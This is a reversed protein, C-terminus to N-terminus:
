VASSLRRFDQDGLLQRPRRIAFHLARHAAAALRLTLIPAPAGEWEFRLAEGDDDPLLRARDGFREVWEELALEKLGPLVDLEYLVGM